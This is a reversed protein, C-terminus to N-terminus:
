SINNGYREGAYWIEEGELIKAMQKPFLAEDIPKAIFGSFGMSKTKPLAFAPESASIAVIPVNDYEPYERIQNFVDYGSNGNPLMLDLIILDPNYKDLKEITDRGWQDFEVFAGQTILSMRFVIQNM